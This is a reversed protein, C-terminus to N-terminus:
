IKVGTDNAVITYKEITYDNINTELEFVIDTIYDRCCWESLGVFVPIYNKYVVYIDM